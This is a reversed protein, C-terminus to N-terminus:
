GDKVWGSTKAQAAKVTAMARRSDTSSTESIELTELASRNTSTRRQNHTTHEEARFCDQLRETTGFYPARGALFIGSLSNQDDGLLLLLAGLYVLSDCQQSEEMPVGHAGWPSKMPEGHVGWSSLPFGMPDGHPFAVKGM